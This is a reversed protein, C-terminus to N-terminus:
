VSFLCTRTELAHISSPYHKIVHDEVNEGYIEDESVLETSFTVCHADECRINNPHYTLFFPNSQVHLM